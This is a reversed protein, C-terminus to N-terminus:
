NRLRLSEVRMREWRGVQRAKLNEKLQSLADILADTEPIRERAHRTPSTTRTNDTTSVSHRPSDNKPRTM